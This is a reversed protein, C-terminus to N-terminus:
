KPIVHLGNFHAIYGSGIKRCRIKLEGNEDATFSGWQVNQAHGLSANCQVTSTENGNVSFEIWRNEAVTYYSAFGIDCAQLPTLGGITLMDVYTTSQTYCFFQKIAGCTSLSAKPESNPFVSSSNSGHLMINATSTVTLSSPVFGELPALKVASNSATFRWYNGGVADKHPATNITSYPAIITPLPTPVFNFAEAASLKAVSVPSLGKIFNAVNKIWVRALLETGIDTWHTGDSLLSKGYNYSWNYSTFYPTDTEAVWQTPTLGVTNPKLINDNFPKSGTTEDNWSSISGWPSAFSQFTAEVNAVVNGNAAISSLLGSMWTNLKERNATSVVSWPHYGIIDNAMMHTFVLTKDGDATYDSKVSDWHAQIEDIHRGGTSEDRVTIGPLGEITLMKNLLGERGAVVADEISAGLMVLKTVQPQPTYTFEVPDTAAGDDTVPLWVQAGKSTASNTGDYEDFRVGVISGLTRGEFPIKVAGSAPVDINGGDIIVLPDTASAVADFVTYRLGPKASPLGNIQINLELAM